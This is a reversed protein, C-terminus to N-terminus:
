DDDLMRNKPEELRSKNKSSYTRWVILAFIVFLGIALFALLKVLSELAIAWMLGRHHESADLNRTGFLTSFLALALAIYLSLNGPLADGTGSAFAAVPGSPAKQNEPNAIDIWYNVDLTPVTGGRASVAVLRAMESKISRYGDDYHATVKSM